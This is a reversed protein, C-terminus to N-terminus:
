CDSRESTQSEIFSMESKYDVTANIKLTFLLLRCTRYETLIHNISYVLM